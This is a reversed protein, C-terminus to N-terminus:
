TYCMFYIPLSVSTGDPPRANGCAAEVCVVDIHTLLMLLRAVTRVVRQPMVNM